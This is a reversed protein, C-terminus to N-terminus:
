KIRFRRFKAARNPPMSLNWSKNIVDPIENYAVLVPLENIKSLIFVTQVLNAVKM